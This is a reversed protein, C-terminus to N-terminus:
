EWIDNIQTTLDNIHQELQSNLGNFITSATTSSLQRLYYLQDQCDKQMELLLDLSSKRDIMPGGYYHHYKTSFDPAVRIHVPVGLLEYLHEAFAEMDDADGTGSAILVPKNHLTTEEEWSSFDFNLSLPAALSPLRELLDATTEASLTHLTITIGDMYDAM